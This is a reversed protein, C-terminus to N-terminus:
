EATFRCGAAAQRTCSTPGQPGDPCPVSRDSGAIAHYNCEVAAHRGCLRKVELGGRGQCRSCRPGALIGRSRAGISRTASAPRKPVRAIRSMGTPRTASYRTSKGTCCSPSRRATESHSWLLFIGRNGSGAPVSARLSRQAFRVWLGADM